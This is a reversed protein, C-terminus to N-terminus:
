KSKGCLQGDASPASLGSVKTWPTGDRFLVPPPSYIRGVGRTTWASAVRISSSRFAKMRREFSGATSQSLRRERFYWRHEAREDRRGGPQEDLGAPFEDLEVALCFDLDLIHRAFRPLLCHLATAGIFAFRRSAWLASLESLTQTQLETFRM